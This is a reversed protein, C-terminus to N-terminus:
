QEPVVVFRGGEVMVLIAENQREGDPTFRLAEGSTEQPSLNVQRLRQLVTARSVDASLTAILAQTADFSMATRWSVSGGWQQAAAGAFRKANPAERFWPIALTLGEITEGGANLTQKSYLSDGGFLKPAKWKPNNQLKASQEANAAAIKLAVDTHKTDPFLLVAQAKDEWVSKVVEKEADLNPDNLIMKPVVQGGLTEFHKIFVERMSNSYDSDPNSFVVAKKLNLKKFIYEALKKGTAEESPVTRFFVDSQLLISTSTPSIIALEAEEYKDLAAQTAESSNHGIVGLISPDKVLEAAVQQAQAPENGDNAIVIELFRGNSGGSNNFQNQAQAIGRLMEKAKPEANDVPVVVALTYPLSQQQRALANNYYILVEPDNRNDAVARKFFQAAQPYNKKRFAEIGLERNTNGTTPFFTRDGRSIKGRDAKCLIGLEKQKGAPCPTSWRYTGFSVIMVIAVLAVGIIIRRTRRRPQPRISGSEYTEIERLRQHASARDSEIALVRHYQKKAQTFEQQITLYHGYTELVNLLKEKNHKPDVQYAQEYLELARHFNEIELYGEALLPLTEPKRMEEKLKHSRILWLRVLEVKIRRKTDDLIGKNALQAVAQSLSEIRIVGYREKLLTLPEEPFEAGAIRQAEAVASLVVQEPITLGDWFWALGGQAFETARDVISEVDRVGVDRQGLERLRSFLAFCIVQTFYPHGASLNFIAEIAELKYSLIENVPRCILREASLKELFSIEQFPADKFLQLLNPLDNLHRGVVPIIFLNNQRQIIESLYKFFNGQQAININNSNENDIVDFEDLLLVLKRNQIERCVATLLREFVYPDDELEERNPLRLGDQFIQPNELIERALDHLIDVLSSQSHHQLDFVVFVFESNGVFKSIQRLVSSKGIRRQGHLLIVKVNQNLNDEIFRFLSERGFFYQPEDIPRGIIYPNRNNQQNVM